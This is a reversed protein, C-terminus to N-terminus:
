IKKNKKSSCFNNPNKFKEILSKLEVPRDEGDGDM